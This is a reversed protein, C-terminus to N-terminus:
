ALQTLMFEGKFIVKQRDVFVIQAVLLHSIIGDCPLKRNFSELVNPLFGDTAPRRVPWQESVAQVVVKPRRCPHRRHYPRSPIAWSGRVGSWTSENVSRVNTIM